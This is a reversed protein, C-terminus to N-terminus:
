RDMRVTHQSVEVMEYALGVDSDDGDLGGVALGRDPRKRGIALTSAV